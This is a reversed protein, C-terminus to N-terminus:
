RLGAMKQLDEQCSSPRINLLRQPQRKFPGWELPAVEAVFLVVLPCSKLLLEACLKRQEDEWLSTILIASSILDLNEYLTHKLKRHNSDRQPKVCALAKLTSISPGEQRGCSIRHCQQDIFLLDVRMTESPLHQCFSAALSVAIEFNQPSQAHPELIIATRQSREEQYEMVRLEGMKASSRWHIHKLSDGQHYERLASFDGQQGIQSSLAKPQHLREGRSPLNLQPISFRRPLVLMEGRCSVKQVSRMFGLAETRYLQLQTWKFCGRQPFTITCTTSHINKRKTVGESLLKESDKSFSNLTIEPNFQGLLQQFCRYGMFRDFFNLKSKSKELMWEAFSPLRWDPADQYEPPSSTPLEIELTYNFPIQATATGKIHRRLSIPAPGKMFHAGLASVMLLGSMLSFLQYALTFKTNMGPLVALIAMGLLLKGAPTFRYSLSKNWHLTKIYRRYLWFRWRPTPTHDLAEDDLQDHTAPLKSNFVESSAGSTQKATGM